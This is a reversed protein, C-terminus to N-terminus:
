VAFSIFQCLIPNLSIHCILTIFYPFISVTTATGVLVAATLLRDDGMKFNIKFNGLNKFSKHILISRAFLPHTLFLFRTKVIYFNHSHM